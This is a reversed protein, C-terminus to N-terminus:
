FLYVDKLSPTSDGNKPVPWYWAFLLLIKNLTKTYMLIDELYVIIYCDLLDFFTDNM